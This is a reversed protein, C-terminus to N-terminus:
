YKLYCKYAKNWVWFLILSCYFNQHFSFFLVFKQFFEKIIFYFNEFSTKKILVKFSFVGNKAQESSSWQIFTAFWQPSKSCILLILRPSGLDFLSYGIIVIVYQIKRFNEQFLTKLSQFNQCVSFLKRWHPWM